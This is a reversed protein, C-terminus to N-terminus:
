EAQWSGILDKGSYTYLIVRDLTTNSLPAPLKLGEPTHRVQIHIPGEARLSSKDENYDKLNLRLFCRGQPNLTARDAPSLPEGKLDEASLMKILEPFHESLALPSEGDLFTPFAEYYKYYRELAMAFSQLRLQVELSKAKSQAKLYYPLSIGVLSGIIALVM